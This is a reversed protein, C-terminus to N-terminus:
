HLQKYPADVDLHLNLLNVGVLLHGVNHYLFSLFYKDLQKFHTNLFSADEIELRLSIFKGERDFRKLFSSLKNISELVSFSEEYKHNVKQM